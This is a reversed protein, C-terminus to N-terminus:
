VKWIRRINYKFIRVILEKIISLRWRLKTFLTYKSADSTCSANNEHRRYLILKENVFSIQGISESILGIWWDHMPINDPFPLVVNLVGRNFALCCGMYNNKLINNFVGPRSNNQKYFSESVPRLTSDTIMCDSVILVNEILYNLSVEVKNNLWVDDQDALFIVDGSVHMLANEFNKVVGLQPGYILKIRSDKYGRIMECTLDTSGDDSVIIEDESGLQSVISDLQEKIYKEGNFSAICVSITQGRSRM